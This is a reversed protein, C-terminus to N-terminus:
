QDRVAEIADDISELVMRDQEQRKLRELFDLILQAGDQRGITSLAQVAADRVAPSPDESALKYAVRLKSSAAGDCRARVLGRLMAERVTASTLAGSPPPALVEAFASAAGEHREVIGALVAVADDIVEERPTEGVTRLVAEISLLGDNVLLAQLRQRRSRTWIRSSAGLFRALDAMLQERAAETLYQVRSEAAALMGECDREEAPVGFPQHQDSTLPSPPRRQPWGRLGSSGPLQETVASVSGTRM